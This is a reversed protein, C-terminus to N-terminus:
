VQENLDIWEKLNDETYIYSDWKEEVYYTQFIKLNCVICKSEMVYTVINDKEIEKYLSWLCGEHDHKNLYKQNM